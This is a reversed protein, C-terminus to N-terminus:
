GHHRNDDGRSTSNLVARHVFRAFAEPHTSHATHGAGDIITLEAHTLNAMLHATGKVHHPRCESGQGVVAPVGVDRLDFPPASRIAKMDALLAPGEARRAAKTSPPLREWREDGLIYRMFAEAGEEPTAASVAQGGATDQPWWPMWATPVEYLGLGVVLDPRAISAAMAINGGHSHGVVVAPQEGLHALLEEAQADVTELPPGPAAGYGARDYAVADPLHRLVKDFSAARDMTGHVLAVRM